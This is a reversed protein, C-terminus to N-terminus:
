QALLKKVDDIVGQLKTTTKAEEEWRTLEIGLASVLEVGDDNCYLYHGLAMFLSNGNEVDKERELQFLIFSICQTVDDSDNRSVFLSLNYLLTIKATTINTFMKDNENVSGTIVHVINSLNEASALFFGGRPSSFANALLRLAMLRTPSSTNESLCLNMAKQLLTKENAYHDVATSHLMLLRIMDLCPFIKDDPLLSVFKALLTFADDPISFTSITETNTLIRELISLTVNDEESITGGAQIVHERLKPLIM